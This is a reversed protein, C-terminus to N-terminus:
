IDRQDLVESLWGDAPLNANGASILLGNPRVADHGVVTVVANRNHELVTDISFESV